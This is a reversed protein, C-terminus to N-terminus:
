RPRHHRHQASGHPTRPNNAAGSYRNSSFPWLSHRHGATRKRLIRMLPTLPAMDLWSHGLSVPNAGTGLKFRTLGATRETEIPGLDIQLHGNAKLWQMARWLVMRHAALKRGESGTWGILYTAGPRHLAFLMAAVPRAGQHAIFMRTTTAGQQALALSLAIPHSRYRRVRRQALEKRLLWHLPDVPLPSHRITLAHSEAQRLANRWKGHLGARMDAISPSLDLLALHQPTYLPVHGAARHDQDATQDPANTIMIRPQAGPLSRRILDLVRARCQPSQPSAFLPGNPLYILQGWATSRRIIQAHAIPTGVAHIVCRQVDSGLAAVARAYPLSQQFTEIPHSLGAPIPRSDPISTWDIEM